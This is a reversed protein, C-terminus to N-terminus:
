RIAGPHHDGWLRRLLGAVLEPQMRNTGAGVFEDFAHLLIPDHELFEGIVPVLVIDM